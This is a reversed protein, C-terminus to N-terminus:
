RGRSTWDKGKLQFGSLSIRRQQYGDCKPDSCPIKKDKQESEEWTCLISQVNNCKNCLFEYLAM